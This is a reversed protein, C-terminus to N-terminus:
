EKRHGAARKEKKVPSVISCWSPFAFDKMGPLGFPMGVVGEPLSEIQCVPLNMSGGECVVTVLDNNAIDLRMMDAGTLALYPNVAREAVSPCLM